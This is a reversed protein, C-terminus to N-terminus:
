EIKVGAAKVVRAYEQMDNRLLRGFQAPAGGIVDFGEAALQAKMEAGLAQRVIEESVRAVVGPPTGGPALVGFWNVLDYGPAASEDLTPVQPLLPARQRSTVALAKVKAGKIAPLAQTITSFYLDIRGGMTETLAPAGGKFPVHVFRAGTKMAFLETALHPASGNGSSAFNLKGPNAGAQQMLEKISNSSSASPVLVVFPVSAVLSVPILDALPDFSLRYLSPNVAYSASVMLLTYGNAPSKAAADAGVNGGAGPRNEVVVPQGWAETLKRGILRAIIDTAGGPPFPVILRIPRDPYAQAPSEGPLLFCATALVALLRRAPM